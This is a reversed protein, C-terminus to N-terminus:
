VSGLQSFISLYENHRSYSIDKNQSFDFSPPLALGDWQEKVDRLFVSYDADWTHDMSDNDSMRRHMVYNQGHTRYVIGGAARVADILGRDVASEVSRWGGVSELDTKSLLMTGGAIHDTYTEGRHNRRTTIDLGGLYTFEVPTGVLQAGSYDRALVLDEVHHPAYWDDDDVKTVLEGEAMACAHNLVTGFSMTSAFSRLKVQGSYRELAKKSAIPLDQDGHIAIVTELSRYTQRELQDLIVPLLMPRRTVLVMSVEPTARAHANEILGIKALRRSPLFEKLAARRLMISAAELRVPSDFSSWPQSIRMSVETGLLEEVENSLTGCETPTGSMSLQALIRAVSHPNSSKDAELRITRFDRLYSIVNEDLLRFPACITKHDVSICWRADDKSFPRIVAEALSAFPDFGRPSIVVPDVPPLLNSVEIDTTPTGQRKAAILGSALHHSLVLDLSDVVPLDLPERDRDVHRALRDGVAWAASAYNTVGCRIGAMATTRTDNGRTGVIASITEHISKWTPGELKIIRYRVHGNLFFVNLTDGGGVTPTQILDIGGGDGWFRIALIIRKAVGAETLLPLVMRAAAVSDLVLVYDDIWPGPRGESTCVLDEASLDQQVWEDLSNSLGLDDLLKSHDEQECYALTKRFSNSKSRAGTM